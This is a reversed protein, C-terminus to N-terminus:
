GRLFNDVWTFANSFYMELESYRPIFNYALPLLKIAEDRQEVRIWCQQVLHLLQEYKGYLILAHSLVELAEARQKWRDELLGIVREAEQWQKAQAL